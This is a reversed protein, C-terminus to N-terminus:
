CAFYIPHASNEWFGDLQQWYQQTLDLACAVNLPANIMGSAM